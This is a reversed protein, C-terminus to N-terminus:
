KAWDINNSDVSLEYGRSSTGFVHFTQSKKGFYSNNRYVRATVVIRNGRSTQAKQYAPASDGPLIKLLNGDKDIALGGDVEVYIIYGSGDRFNNRVTVTTTFFWPIDTNITAKPIARYVVRKTGACGMLVTTTIVGFLLFAIFRKM